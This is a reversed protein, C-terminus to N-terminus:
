CNESTGRNDSGFTFHNLGSRAPPYIQKIVALSMQCEGKMSVSEPPKGNTISNSSVEAGARM